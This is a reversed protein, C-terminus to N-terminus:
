SGSSAGSRARRWRRTGMEAAKAEAAGVLKHALESSISTKDFTDSM